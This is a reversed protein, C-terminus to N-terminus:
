KTHVRKVSLLSEHKKLFSYEYGLFKAKETVNELCFHLPSHIIQNKYQFSFRRFKEIKQIDWYKEGNINLVFIDLEKLSNFGYTEITGSVNVITTIYQIKGFYKQVFKDFFKRM